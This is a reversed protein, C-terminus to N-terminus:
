TASVTADPAEAAPLWITFCAGPGGPKGVEIRGGHREVIEHAIPLGLGTGPVGSERGVKGRFFREFLHPIEEALLGPGSDCVSVTVWPRSEHEQLATSVRVEGGPPTYNLANTLLVGLAEGLAEANGRVPPLEGGREFILRLGCEEALPTRDTIYQEVLRNLDVEAPRMEVRGQDLRSLYLLEEVINELRDTERKLRELYKVQGEPDEALLRHYIKLSTIPTRLEHSVNSVFRDKLESLERLRVNAAELEATREAVRRELHAYAQAKAIVLAVAKAVQETWAIEDPTLHHSRDFALILAGLAHGDTQLPAVLLSHEPLNRQAFLERVSPALYPTTAIDDVILPRGARLVAETLTGKGSQIEQQRLLDHYAGFAAAAIPMSRAADWLSLYCARGGVVESAANALIHLLEDLSLATTDLRMIRNLAELQRARKQAETYLHANRIAIAAHHAFAQLREAHHPKFRGPRDSDLNIFGLTEGSLRIPAGMFSRVWRTAPVDVWSAHQHSDEVLVPQGSEAMQRLSPVEALPLRLAAIAEQAQWREYGRSRVVRAVGEEVLMVNAAEYPILRELMDLIRQLVEDLELTSTLVVAIERLAEALAQEDHLAQEMELRETVDEYITLVGIIREEMDRLPVKNVRAWAQRGDPLREPSLLGLQPKNSEMVERDGARYLESLPWGWPLDSDTRGVVEEPTSLGVRLAFARNCGQYVLRRDKWFVPQPINDIVLRLRQQSEYLAREALHRRRIYTWLMGHVFVTTGLVYLLGKITQARTSLIM